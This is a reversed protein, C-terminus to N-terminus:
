LADAPRKRGTLTGLDELLGGVGGAVDVDVETDLPPRVSADDSCALVCMGGSGFSCCTDVVCRYVAETSSSHGEQSGRSSCDADTNCEPQQPCAMDYGCFGEGSAASLCFCHQPTKGCSQYGKSCTGPNSCAHQQVRTATSNVESGLVDRSPGKVPAVDAPYASSATVAAGASGSVVVSSSLARARRIPLPANDDSNQFTKVTLQGLTALTAFCM